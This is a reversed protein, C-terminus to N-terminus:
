TREAKSVFVFSTKPASVFEWLKARERQISVWELCSHRQWSYDEELSVKGPGRFDRWSDLRCGQVVGATVLSREKNAYPYVPKLEKKVAGGWTAFFERFRCKSTAKRQGQAWAHTRTCVCDTSGDMRQEVWGVSVIM